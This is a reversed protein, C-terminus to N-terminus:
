RNPGGFAEPWVVVLMIVIRPPVPTNLPALPVAVPVPVFVGGGPGFSRDGTKTVPDPCILAGARAATGSGDVRGIM